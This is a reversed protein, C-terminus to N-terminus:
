NISLIKPASMLGGDIINYFYFGSEFENVDISISRKHIDLNLEKKVNGLVDVIQLKPNNLDSLDFDFNLIESAPNPYCDIENDITFPLDDSSILGKFWDSTIKIIQESIEASLM